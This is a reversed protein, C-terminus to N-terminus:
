EGTLLRRMKSVINGKFDIGEMSLLYKKFCVGGAASFGTLKGDAAVIRHCPIVIPIPNSAMAGGIARAARPVGAMEAIEGYSRVEGAPIARIAKLIEARFITVKGLDVPLASFSINEGRFYASLMEAAEETLPSSEAKETIEHVQEDKDDPLIVRSIGTDTAMVVGTKNNVKFFSSYEM